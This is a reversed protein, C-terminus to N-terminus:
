QCSVVILLPVKVKNIVSGLARCASNALLEATKTFDMHEDLIIGLYKYQSVTELCAEDIKFVRNSRYKNKQRFHM